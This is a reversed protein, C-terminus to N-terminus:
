ERGGPEKKIVINFDLWGVGTQGRNTRVKCVARPLHAERGEPDLLRLGVQEIIECEIVLNGPEIRLTLNGPLGNTTTEFENIVSSIETLRGDQQISGCPGSSKTGQGMAITFIDMGDSLHLGSWVWDAVWWNRIGWSHNRGGPTGQLSIREDGIQITGSVRCPFEYRTLGQKQYPTGATHWVLDVQVDDVDKGTEGRLPASPDSFATGKGQIRLAFKKLPDLCRSDVTFRDTSFKQTIPDTEPLPAHMDIFLIPDENRRLIGGIFNSIQQNPLRALRGYFGLSGDSSVCDFYWSESWMPGAGDPTVHQGEDVVNASISAVHPVVLSTANM